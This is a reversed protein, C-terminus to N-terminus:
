PVSQLSWDCPSTEEHTGVKLKLYLVYQKTEFKHTMLWDVSKLFIKKIFIVNETVDYFQIYKCQKVDICDCRLRHTQSKQYFQNGYTCGGRCM